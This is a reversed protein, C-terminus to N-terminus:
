VWAIEHNIEDRRFTNCSPCLNIKRIGYDYVYGPANSCYDCLERPDFTPNATDPKVMEEEEQSMPVELPYPIFRPVFGFDPLIM